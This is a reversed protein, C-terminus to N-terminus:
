AKKEFLHRYRPCVEPETHDSAGCAPCKTRPVGVVPVDESRRKDLEFPRLPLPARQKERPQTGGVVLRLPYRESDSDGPQWKKMAGCAYEAGWKVDIM